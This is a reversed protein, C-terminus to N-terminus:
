EDDEEDVEYTLFLPAFGERSRQGNTLSLVSELVHTLLAPPILISTCDLSADTIYGLFASGEDPLKITLVVEGLGPQHFTRTREITM